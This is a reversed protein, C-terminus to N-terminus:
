LDQGLCGQTHRRGIGSNDIGTSIEDPKPAALRLRTSIRGVVIQQGQHGTLNYSLSRIRGGIVTASLHVWAGLPNILSTQYRATAGNPTLQAAATGHQPFAAFEAILAGYGLGESPFGRGVFYRGDAQRRYQYCGVQLAFPKSGAPLPPIPGESAILRSTRPLYYFAFDTGHIVSLLTIWGRVGPGSTQSYAVYGDQLTALAAAHIRQLAENQRAVQNAGFIGVWAAAGVLVLLTTLLTWPVWRM